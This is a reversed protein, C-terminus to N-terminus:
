IYVEGFRSSHSQCFIPLDFSRLLGTPDHDMELCEMSVSAHVRYRWRYMDGILRPHCGVPLGWQIRIQHAPLCEDDVQSWRLNGYSICINIHSAKRVQANNVDSVRRPLLLPIYTSSIQDCPHFSMSAKFITHSLTLYNKQNTGMLM